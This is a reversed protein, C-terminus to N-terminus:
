GAGAPLIQGLHTRVVAELEPDALTELRRAFTRAAALLAEAEQQAEAEAGRLAAEQEDQLTKAANALEAALEQQLRELEQAVQAEREDIERRIAEEAALIDSLLEDAMILM